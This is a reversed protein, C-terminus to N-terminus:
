REPDVVVQGRGQRRPLRVESGLEGLVRTAVAPDGRDLRVAGAPDDPPDGRRREVFLRAGPHLHPHALVVERAPGSDDAIAHVIADAGAALSCPRGEAAACRPRPGRHPGPCVVALAGFSRLSASGPWADSRSEIVVQPRDAHEPWVPMSERVGLALHMETPEDHDLVVYGRRTAVALMARNDRLIHAHFNRVGHDRGEEVVRELLYSGFWGRTRAGVTMDLEADGVWVGEAIPAFGADAILTGDDAEAVLRVADRAANDIWQAVLERIPPAGSFFRHYTDEPSLGEYLAVLTELDDPRVPRISVLRGAVRLSVESM